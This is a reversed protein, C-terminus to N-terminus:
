RLRNYNKPPNLREYAALYHLAHNFARTLREPSGPAFDPSKKKTDEALPEAIFNIRELPAM